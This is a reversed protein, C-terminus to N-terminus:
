KVRIIVARRALEPSVAVKDIGKGNSSLIRDADVGARKLYNEVAACRKRSLELNYSESGTDSCWAEIRIATEPYRYLGQAIHDLTTTATEDLEASNNAFYVPPMEAFFRLKNEERIREMEARKREEERLRAEEEAKKKELALRAAEAEAAAAAAAAAALASGDDVKGFHWGAKVGLDWIFNTAHAHIPMDDFKVGCIDVIDAYASLKLHNTLFCGVSLQAGFGFNTNRGPEVCYSDNSGNSLPGWLRATSSLLSLQPSLDLTWRQNQMGFINFLDFNAQLSYRQYKIQESLDKYNWGPMDTQPYAYRVFDISMWYTSCCNMAGYNLKGTVVTAELSFWRNFRYGGYLGADFGAHGKPSCSSLTTMGFDPGFEVGAFFGKEPTHIKYSKQQAELAPICLLLTAFIIVIKKM